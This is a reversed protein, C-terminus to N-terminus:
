AAEGKRLLHAAIARLVKELSEPSPTREGSEVRSLHTHDVQADKALGRRSLGLTVRIERLVPGVGAANRNQETEM